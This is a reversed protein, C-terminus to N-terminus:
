HDTSVHKVVCRRFDVFVEKLDERIGHVQTYNSKSVIDKRAKIISQKEVLCFGDDKDTLLAAMPGQRLIRLGLRAVGTLNSCENRRYKMRSKARKAWQFVEGKVNSIYQETADDYVRICPRLPLKM